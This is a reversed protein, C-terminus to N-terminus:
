KMKEVLVLFYGELLQASGDRTGVGEQSTLLSIHGTSLSGQVITEVVFFGQKQLSQQM